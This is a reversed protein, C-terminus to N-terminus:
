CLSRWFPQLESRFLDGTELCLFQCMPIPLSDSLPKPVPQAPVLIWTAQSGAQSVVSSGVYGPSVWFLCGM